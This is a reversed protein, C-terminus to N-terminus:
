NKNQLLERIEKLPDAINKNDKRVAKVRFKLFFVAGVTNLKGDSKKKETKALSCPNTEAIIFLM